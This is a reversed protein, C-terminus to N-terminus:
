LNSITKNMEFARIFRDYIDLTIVYMIRHPRISEDSDQLYTVNRDVYFEDFRDILMSVNHSVTLYAKRVRVDLRVYENDDKLLLRIDDVLNYVDIDTM